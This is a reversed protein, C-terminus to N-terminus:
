KRTPNHADTRAPNGETRLAALVDADTTSSPTPPHERRFKALVDAYTRNSKPRLRRRRTM